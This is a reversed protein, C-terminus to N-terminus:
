KAIARFADYAPKPAGSYALLGFNRSKDRRDASTDQLNFWIGAKVYRWERMQRYAQKLWRAQKARGVCNEYAEPEGRVSCTSWGFETLWLPEPDGRRELVRRVAPVGRIFSNKVYRDPGPTLPSRDESYPHFSWGDFHDKVGRRFLERTFRYDSGALAGGLITADRHARKARPYARKLLRAYQAAPRGGKLFDSHNPENWVEWAAVRDGYRRVLFALARAYEGPERPAYRQVGREWWAGECGRKLSSPARSAWCPTEWFTMILRIGRRNAVRVVHDIKGLYWESVRGRGRSELTSWGVDVRAYRAGISDLRGIDRRVDAKSEDSWLLHANVGPTAAAAAGPAALCAAVLATAVSQARGGSM